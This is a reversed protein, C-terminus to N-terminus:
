LSEKFSFQAAMLGYPSRILLMSFFTQSVLRQIVSTVLKTRRASTSPHLIM